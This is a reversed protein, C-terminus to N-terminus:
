ALLSPIESLVPDALWRGLLYLQRAHLGMVLLLVLVGFAVAIALSFVGWIVLAAFAVLMVPTALKWWFEQM